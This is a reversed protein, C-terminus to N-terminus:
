GGKRKFGMARITNMDADTMEDSSADPALWQLLEVLSTPAAGSFPNSASALHGVLAAPRAYRHYDDFPHRLFFQLWGQFESPKITAKWEEISRGGL